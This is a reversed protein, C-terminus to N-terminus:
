MGDIPAADAAPEYFVFDGADLDEVATNDLLIPGEGHTATLDIVTITGFSWFHLDDFGSIAEFASLDIVDEGDGFDIIEDTGNGPGFVFTDAGAGGFLQNNGEGGALLDDGDGGDLTDSGEGGFLWDDGTGGDLQDRGEGGRLVDDGDEGFLRDDGEGGFLLTYGTGGEITDDGEEGYLERSHENGEIWDDGEGGFVVEIGPQAVIRNDDADDVLTSGVDAFFYPNYPPTIRTGDLVFAPMTGDPMNFNVASLDSAAIGRLEISGDLAAHTIRVGSGDEADVISLDSFEIPGPLLRLDIADNEVEFRDIVDNGAAAAYLFTDRGAGGVMVDDGSGGALLDDGDGGHITDNGEDGWLYDDGREGSLHDNGTDGRLFDRDAGGALTDDGSGGRLIDRGGGGGIVDDGSGGLVTDVDGGGGLTDRNSGGLIIDWGWGGDITDADSGGILADAKETAEDPNAM